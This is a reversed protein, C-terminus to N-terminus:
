MLEKYIHAVMKRIEALTAELSALRNNIGPLKPGSGNSEDEVFKIDKPETAIKERVINELKVVQSARLPREEWKRGNWKFASGLATVDGAKIKPYHRSLLPNRENHDAILGERLATRIVAASVRLRKGAEKANLYKPM